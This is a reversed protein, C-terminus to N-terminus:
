IHECSLFNPFYYGAFCVNIVYASGLISAKRSEELQRIENFSIYLVRNFKKAQQKKHFYNATAAVHFNCAHSM